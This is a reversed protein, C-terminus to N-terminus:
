AAPQETVVEIRRNQARGEPTDNSAQPHTDGRGKASIINPDVGQSILYRVVANARKTSLDLNDVIGRKQLAPGRFPASSRTPIPLAVAKM